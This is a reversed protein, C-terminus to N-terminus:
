CEFLALPGLAAELAARPDPVKVLDAICFRPLQGRGGPQFRFAVRPPQPCQRISTYRYSSTGLRPGRGTRLRDRQYAKKAAERNPFLDPHLKAADTPMEPEWGRAIMEDIADPELDEFEVVENVGLGPVVTDSLILYVEVSNGATRNVGRARGVAQEIAAETVAQRVMEAAPVAYIRRKIIQGALRGALITVHQEVTPGAVIPRGTIAAAMHEIDGSRPLPRGIIILVDVDKWRDIGEIANFHGVEVGEIDAFDAEISKYTIVLGRRGAVQHRCTDALRQRKRGVREEEDASRKGPPLPQLSAKGVPLGIVQTIRMHPAEVKLDCALVLDPLYHKVLDLPLTADAHIIPLGALTEATDKHGIVRLWRVTGTETTNTELILRGTADPEGQSVADSGAILDELARWMAARAPLQGVFGFQKVAEKWEEDSAGPQMGSEVKRKWELKRAVSCSSDEFATSPLLGAEILPARRVYGDRMDALAGQLREILDRLHTTENDLKAGFSNRVPFAELEHDLRDTALRTGTIGDQWFGEDVVVLGFKKGLAEVMQFLIEHAAFVVDAKKAPAKQAQYQCTEYFPCRAEKHKCVTSEVEAGIKLAAKVEEINRCMPQDTGLKTGERGQWVAATVGGPMRSRAEDALRHTPVPHLVRHPLGRSRAEIVFRAIAQRGLESKGVGTTIKIASHPPNKRDEPQQDRWVEHWTLAQEVIEDLIGRLVKRGDDASSGGAQGQASAHEPETEYVVIFRSDSEARDTV